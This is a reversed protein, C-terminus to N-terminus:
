KTSVGPVTIKPTETAAPAAAPAPAPAASAAPRDKNIEKMVDDTIEYSADAYIVSSVGILTPGAKDLLLTAGKRKGVDSAIKSIEELMVSRFNQLRQQLSRQTNQDFTGIENKKRQIEDLKKAAEGQSKAKAADTLSPNNAQDSLGKYEEVLVNGDKNMKEIEEQAKQEDARLKANQEETKYHSDYLKAMDVVLITPAAAQAVVASLAIAAFISLSTITKKM